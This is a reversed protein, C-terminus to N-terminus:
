VVLKLGCITLAITPMDSLGQGPLSLMHLSAPSALMCASTCVSLRGLENYPTTVQELIYSELEDQQEKGSRVQYWYNHNSRTKMRQDYKRHAHAHIHTHRTHSSEPVGSLLLGREIEEEGLSM